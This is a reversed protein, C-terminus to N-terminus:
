IQEERRGLHAPLSVNLIFVHGSRGTAGLFRRTSEGEDLQEDHDRDDDNQDGNQERGQGTGPADGSGYFARRLDLGDIQGHGDVGTFVVARDEASGEGGSGKEQLWIM